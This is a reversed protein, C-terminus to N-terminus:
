EGTKTTCKIYTESDQQFLGWVINAADVSRMLTTLRVQLLARDLLCLTSAEAFALRLIPQVDYLIPYKPRKSGRKLRRAAQRLLQIGKPNRVHVIADEVWEARTAAPIDQQCELQRLHDRIQSSTMEQVRIGYYFPNGLSTPTSAKRRPRQIASNLRPRSTQRDDDTPATAV